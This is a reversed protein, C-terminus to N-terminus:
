DSRRDSKNHRKQPVMPDDGDGDVHLRKNGKEIGEQIDLSNLGSVIAEEDRKMKKEETIVKLAAQKLSHIIKRRLKGYPQGPTHKYAVIHNAVSVLDKHSYGLYMPVRFSANSSTTNADSKDQDSDGTPLGSSITDKSACTTADLRHPHSAVVTGSSETRMGVDEQCGDAAADDLTTKQLKSALRTEAANEAPQSKTGHVSSTGGRVQKEAEYRPLNQRYVPSQVRGLQHVLEWDTQSTDQMTLFGVPDFIPGAPQEDSIETNDSEKAWYRLMCTRLFRQAPMKGAVMIDAYKETAELIAEWFKKEWHRDHTDRQNEMYTLFYGLQDATKQFMSFDWDSSKRNDNKVIRWHFGELSKTDPYRAARHAFSDRIQEFSKPENDPGTASVAM